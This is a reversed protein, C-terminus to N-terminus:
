LEEQLIADLSDKVIRETESSLPSPLLFYPISGLSEYGGEAVQAATPIYGIMGNTYGMPLVRGGAAAAKAYLGYDVVLEANAALLTVGKALRLWVWRLPVDPVLREPAALLKRAWDGTVGPEDKQAELEERTPVLQLPVRVSRDRCVVPAPELPVLQATLAHRVDDALAAGIRRVDADGGALILEGDPGAPNLDGCAGQLFGAVAGDGLTREIDAMAVGCFESSLVNEMSVVPHCAYHVLVGKVRGRVSDKVNYKLVSLDPDRPGNPDAAYNAVGAEVKRRNVSISCSSVSVAASVPELDAAAAAAAEAVVDELWDVYGSDSVGLLDAFRDSTQPGSHSHTGHLWVSDAPIGCRQALRERLRPVREEGWWLLDATVLLAATEQGDVDAHRFLFLRAYIPHAVRDFVGLAGRAAFGALPVPWRPTIDVKATGLRLEGSM